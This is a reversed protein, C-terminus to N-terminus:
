KYIYKSNVKEMPFGVAVVAVVAVFSTNMRTQSTATVTASPM